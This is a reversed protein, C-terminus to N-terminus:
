PLQAAYQGGTGPVVALGPSGPRTPVIVRVPPVRRSAWLPCGGSGEWPSLAGPWAPPLVRLRFPPRQCSTGTERGYAVGAASVGGCVLRAMGARSPSGGIVDGFLVCSAPWASQVSIVATWVAPGPGAPH